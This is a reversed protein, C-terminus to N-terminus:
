TTSTPLLRTPSSAVKALKMRVRVPSTEPWASRREPLMDHGATTATLLVGVTVTERPVINAGAVLRAQGRIRGRVLVSAPAECIANGACSVLGRYRRM